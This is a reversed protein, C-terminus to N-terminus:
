RKDIILPLNESAWPPESTLVFPWYRREDPEICSLLHRLAENKLTGPAEGEFEDGNM